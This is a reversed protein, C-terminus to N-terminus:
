RLYPLLEALILGVHLQLRAEGQDLDVGSLQQIKELRYYLTQRHVSLATAARAAQGAEDLYVLATRLLEDDARARLRAAPSGALLAEVAAPGRRAVRYFGLDSWSLVRGLGPRALAVRAACDAEHRREPLDALRYTAAGLGARDDPGLLRTTRRVAAALQDDHNSQPAALVLSRATGAALGAAPTRVVVVVIPAEATLDGRRVLATRAEAAPVSDGCLLEEVLRDHERVGLQRRALLEGARQALPAARALLEAAVQPGPELVWLYGFTVGASRAPLCARPAIQQAQEGPIHVPGTATRIGKEEFYDKVQQSATRGLISATRVPDVDLGQSRYAVLTFDTDELVAPASLLESLEDVVDQLQRALAAGSDAGSDAGSASAAGPDAPLESM